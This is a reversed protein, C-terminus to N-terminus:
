EHVSSDQTSSVAALLYTRVPKHLARPEIVLEPPPPSFSWNFLVIGFLNLM